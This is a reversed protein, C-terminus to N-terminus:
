GALPLLQALAREVRALELPKRLVLKARKAARSDADIAMGTMLATPMSPWRRELERLLGSGDLVPMALDTLVLEIDRRGDLISLAERGDRAVVVTHGLEGLMTEVSALVADD